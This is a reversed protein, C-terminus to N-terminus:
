IPPQPEERVAGCVARLGEELARQAEGSRLAAFYPSVTGDRGALGRSLILTTGRVAALGAQVRGLVGGRSIVVVRISGGAGKCPLRAEMFGMRPAADVGFGGLRKVAVLAEHLLLREEEPAEVWDFVGLGRVAELLEYLQRGLARLEYVVGRRLTRKAVFGLAVLYREVYEDFSRSNLNALQMIRNKRARGEHALISLVNYIIEARGRRRDRPAIYFHMAEGSRSWLPM